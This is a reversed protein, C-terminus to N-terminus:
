GQPPTSGDVDGPLTGAMARLTERFGTKARSYRAFVAGVIGVLGKVVFVNGETDTVYPQLKAKEEDTFNPM